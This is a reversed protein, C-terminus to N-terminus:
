MASRASGANAPACRGDAESTEKGALDAALAGCLTCRVKQVVARSLGRWNLIIWMSRGDVHGIGARHLVSNGAPICVPRTTMAAAMASASCRCRDPL